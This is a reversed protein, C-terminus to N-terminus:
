CAALSCTSGAAIVTVKVEESLIRQAQEIYAPTTEGNGLQGYNNRGWAWVHGEATLALSHGSGVAIATANGPFTSAHVPTKQTTRTGDGLQGYYNYGWGYVKGDDLLALCFDADKPTAFAKVKDPLVVQIPIPQDVADGNGLKSSTNDGWCWLDGNDVLAFSCWDGAYIATVNLEEFNPVKEATSRNTKSGDGLQGQANYGWAWVDGNEDLALSHGKGAAVTVIGELGRVPVPSDHYTIGTSGSNIAGFGAGLQGYNNNGWSWVTGNEMVTLSHDAGCAVAKVNGRSLLEVDVPTYRDTTTKDGLQGRSNEGWGWASRNPLIVLVHHQGMSVDEFGIQELYPNMTPSAQTLDTGNGLQGKNNQGWTWCRQLTPLVGTGPSTLEGKIHQSLGSGASLYGGFSFLWEAGTTTDQITVKELWWADGTDDVRIDISVLNGLDEFFEPFVREQDVEFPGPLMRALGSVARTGTIKIHANADTGANSQTGTTITIKYSKTAM